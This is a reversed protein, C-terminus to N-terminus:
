SKSTQHVLVLPQTGVLLAIGHLVLFSAVVSSLIHRGDAVVAVATDDCSTDIGLVNM